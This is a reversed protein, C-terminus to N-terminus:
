GGTFEGSGANGYFAGNVKDYLGIEGSANICPAFDRILTGNDYIQCSYLKASAPGSASGARNDALLFLNYNSQFTTATHTVTQGNITCINKDYDISLRDTSGIGSFNLRDGSGGYDTTWLSTSSYYFFVSKSALSSASGTGNRGEFLWANSSVSTLQADMVVRTDQNHKFGTDIYQSGTSEIYDLATFGAPLGSPAIGVGTIFVAM